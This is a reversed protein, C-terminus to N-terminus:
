CCSGPTPTPTPTPPSAPSFFPRDDGGREEIPVILVSSCPKSKIPLYSSLLFHSFNFFSNPLGGAERM